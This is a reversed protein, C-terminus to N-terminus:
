NVKSVRVFIPTDNDFLLNSEEVGKDARGGILIGM